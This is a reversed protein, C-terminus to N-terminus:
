VVTINVDPCHVNWISEFMGTLRYNDLLSHWFRNQLGQINPVKFEKAM